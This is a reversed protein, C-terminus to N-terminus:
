QPWVSATGAFHGEHATVSTTGIPKPVSFIASCIAPSKGSARTARSSRSLAVESRANPATTASKAARRVSM